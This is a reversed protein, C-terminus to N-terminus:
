MKKLDKAVRKRDKARVKNLTNRIKHVVCPLFDAKPFYEKIREEFSSIRDAQLTRDM